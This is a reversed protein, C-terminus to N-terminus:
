VLTGVMRRSLGPDTHPVKNRYLYSIGSAYCDETSDRFPEQELAKDGKGSEFREGSGFFRARLYCHCCRIQLRRPIVVARAKVSGPSCAAATRRNGIFRFRAQRWRLRRILFCTPVLSLFNLAAGLLYQLFPLRTARCMM